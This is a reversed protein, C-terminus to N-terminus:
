PVELGESCLGDRIVREAQREGTHEFARAGFMGNAPGARGLDRRGLSSCCGEPDM